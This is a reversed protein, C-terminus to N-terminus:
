VIIQVGQYLFYDGFQAFFTYGAPIDSDPSAGRTDMLGGPKGLAEILETTTFLPELDPFLRGFSGLGLHSCGRAPANGHHCVPHTM